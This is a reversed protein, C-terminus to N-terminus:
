RVPHSRGPSCEGSHEVHMSKHFVVAAHDRGMLQVGSADRSIAQRPEDLPLSEDSHPLPPETNRAKGSLRQLSPSDAARDRARLREFRVSEPREGVAVEVNEDRGPGRSEASGSVRPTSKDCVGRSNPKM